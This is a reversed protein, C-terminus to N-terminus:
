SMRESLEEKDSSGSTNMVMGSVPSYSSDGARPSQAVGVIDGFATDYAKIYGYHAAVMRPTLAKNVLEPPMLEDSPFSWRDPSLGAGALLRMLELSGGAAALHLLTWDRNDLMRELEIYHVSDALAQFTCVNGFRAACQIYNWGAEWTQQNVPDVHNNFRQFMDIHDKEGFAAARHAPAWGMKDGRNWGSFDARHCIRLIELTTSHNPRVPDWLYSLATWARGNIYDIDAGSQLLLRIM